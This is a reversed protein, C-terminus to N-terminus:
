RLLQRLAGGLDPVKQPAKPHPSAPAPAAPQSKAQSPEAARAPQGRAIALATECSQGAGTVPGIGPIKGGGLVGGLLGLPTEKGLAAGAVAGANAEAAAAPDLSVSASRIPGTVRVPVIVANGGVRGEPRLQLSVTEQGLNVTGGGSVTLLSSSLELTRFTGVGNRADIRAAFCRVDSVGGRGVLDLANVKQLVQGLMSGLLKNDIQGNAMALGLSGDLTSALAHASGGSARLDAYVELNGSVVQPEHFAALLPAMALGPAHLVLAVPPGPQTGEVTLKADLHGAPLNAAFPDARLSGDHLVL